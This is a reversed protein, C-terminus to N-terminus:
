GLEHASIEWVVGSLSNLNQTTSQIVNLWKKGFDPTQFIFPTSISLTLFYDSNSRLERTSIECIGLALADLNQIVSQSVNLLMKGFDPTQFLFPTSISLTLFFDSNSRLERTSIECIVLALADLIQMVSQSVNLLMKGFSPTQFLFPTSISLTLFYDSNSRLERTSIECIVLALADLNQMISQSVNLLMKGFDPTQFIFPASISLTLFYDSNSRLERTSIECIVLALADLNQIVSQSVNLLMKGFDPTQFLFPTSISLTLFYDSNSRLERTSIECIVLALADLNQMVSQSVNLLMKGFDPTQFIFPASISLTLFYDSNSRLERTSIECIVLALADLNQIVSQSVNLLMKGFDPTQFLFPTSISLTLFFDSNSRLERTSIECIGLALADLNQIVSQSVNLLMKGFDATQFIFPASISLTLFYDSNSRLERTSIECIVLALADLNQMVSQSINLLMKGFDPTQFIFPTSISLTLFYDSNSRLERTSIECIVLALADLNQMVSQSVNLLM